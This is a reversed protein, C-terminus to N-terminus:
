VAQKKKPLTSFRKNKAKAIANAVLVSNQLSQITRSSTRNAFTHAQANSKTTLKNRV